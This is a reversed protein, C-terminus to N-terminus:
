NITIHIPESGLYGFLGFGLGINFNVNGYGANDVIDIPVYATIGWHKEIFFEVGIDMDVGIVGTSGGGLEQGIGVVPGVLAFPNIGGTGFASALNFKAFPELAFDYASSSGGANSSASTFNFAVAGGFELISTACYGVGGSIGFNVTNSGAANGYSRYNFGKGTGLGGVAVPANITYQATMPPADLFIQISGEHYGWGDATAHASAGAGGGENTDAPTASSGAPTTALLLLAITYM